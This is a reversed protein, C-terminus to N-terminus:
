DGEGEERMVCTETNTIYIDPKMSLAACLEMGMNHKCGVCQPVRLIRTTSDDTVYRQRTIELEEETLEIDM